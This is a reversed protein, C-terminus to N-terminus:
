STNSDKNTEHVTDFFQLADLTPVPKRDLIDSPCDQSSTCACLLLDGYNVLSLYAIQKVTSKHAATLKRWKAISSQTPMAIADSNSDNAKWVTWWASALKEKPINEIMANKAGLVANKSTSPLLIPAMVIPDLLLSQEMSTRASQAVKQVANFSDELRNPASNDLSEPPTEDVQMEDSTLDANQEQCEDMCVDKDVTPKEEDGAIDQNDGREEDARVDNSNDKWIQRSLRHLAGVAGMAASYSTTLRAVAAEPTEERKRKKKKRRKRIGGQKSALVITDDQHTPKANDTISETTSREGSSESDWDSDDQHDLSRSRRVGSNAAAWMIDINDLLQLNNNTTSINHRSCTDLTVRSVASLQECACVNSLM